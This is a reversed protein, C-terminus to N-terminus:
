MYFLNFFFIRSNYLVLNLIRCDDMISFSHFFYMHIINYIISYTHIISDSQHIGSILVNYTLSNIGRYFSNLIINGNRSM